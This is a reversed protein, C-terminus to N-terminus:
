KNKSQNSVFAKLEKKKKKLGICLVPIIAIIFKKPQHNIIIEIKVFLLVRQWQQTKEQM